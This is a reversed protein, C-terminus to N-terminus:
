AATLNFENIYRKAGEHLLVEIEKYQSPVPIDALSKIGEWESYLQLTVVAPMKHDKLFGLLHEAYHTSQQEPSFVAHVVHRFAYRASASIAQQSTEKIMATPTYPKFLPILHDPIEGFLM